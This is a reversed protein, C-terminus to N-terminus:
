HTAAIQLTAAFSGNGGPSGMPERPAFSAPKGGGKGCCDDVTAGHTPAKTEGVNARRFGKWQVVERCSGRAPRSPPDLRYCTPPVYGTDNAHSVITELRYARVSTAQPARHGSRGRM